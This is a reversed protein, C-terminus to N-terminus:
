RLVNYREIESMEWNKGRKATHYRGFKRPHKKIFPSSSRVLDLGILAINVKKNSMTSRKRNFTKKLFKIGETLNMPKGYISRICVAGALVKIESPKRYGHRRLTDELGV